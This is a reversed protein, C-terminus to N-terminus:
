ETKARGSSVHEKGGALRVRAAAIRDAKAMGYEVARVASQNVFRAPFFVELFNQVLGRDYINVPVGDTTFPPTDGLVAPDGKAKKVAIEQLKDGYSRGSNEQKFNMCEDRIASWKFTESTTANCAVLYLHYVLFAGVVGISVVLVFLFLCLTPEAALAVAPSFGTIRTNTPTYTFNGDIFTLMKAYVIEICLMAGHSLMVLHVALFTLFRNTNYLGIVNGSLSTGYGSFHLSSYAINTRRVGLLFNM